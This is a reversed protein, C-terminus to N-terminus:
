AWIDVLKIRRRKREWIGPFEMDKEQCVFSLKSKSVHKVFAVDVLKGEQFVDFPGEMTFRYLPYGFPVLLFMGVWLIERGVGGREAEGVSFCFIKM